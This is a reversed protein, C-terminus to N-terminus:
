EQIQQQDHPADQKRVFLTSGPFQIPSVSVPKLYANAIFGGCAPDISCLFDLQGLDRTGSQYNGYMQGSGDSNQFVGYGATILAQVTGNGRLYKQFMEEAVSNTNGLENAPYINHSNAWSM